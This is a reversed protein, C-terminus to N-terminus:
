YAPQYDDINEATILTYESYYYRTDLEEGAFIKKAVTEFQEAQAEPSQLVTLEMEGSRISAFAEKMGDISVIRIGERGAARIANIAGIALNDSACYVIDIEDYLSLYNEMITQARSRDSESYEQQLLKLTSGEIGDLFGRTRQMFQTSEVGGDIMVVNADGKTTQVLYGAIDNAMQYQDPGVFAATYGIGEEAVDANIVVIPIQEEYFQECVTIGATRDTPWFLFLDVEMQLMAAAQSAQKAADREADLCVLKWNNEDCCRELSSRLQVGFPTMNTQSLCAGIVKEYKTEGEGRGCGALCSLIVCLLLCMCRKM